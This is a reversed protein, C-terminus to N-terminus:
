LHPFGLTACVCCNEINWSDLLPFCKNNNESAEFLDKLEYQTAPPKIERELKYAEYQHRGNVVLGTPDKHFPGSALSETPLSRQFAVNSKSDPPLQVPEKQSRFFQSSGGVDRKGPSAPGAYLRQKHTRPHQVKRSHEAQQQSIGVALSDSTAAARTKIKIQHQGNGQGENTICPLSGDQSQGPKLGTWKRPYDKVPKPRGNRGLKRQKPPVSRTKLIPSDPDNLSISRTQLDPTIIKLAPASNSVHM